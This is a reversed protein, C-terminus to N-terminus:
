ISANIALLSNVNQELIRKEKELSNVEDRWKSLNPPPNSQNIQAKYAEKQLELEKAVKELAKKTNDQAHKLKSTYSTLEALNTQGARKKNQLIFEQEQYYHIDQVLYINATKLDDALKQTKSIVEDIQQETLFQKEKEDSIFIGVVAGIVGGIIAGIGAGIKSDTIINGIVAGAAAGTLMATTKTKTQDKEFDDQKSTQALQYEYSALEVKYQEYGDRQALLKTKQMEIDQLEKCLQESKTKYLLGKRNRKPSCDDNMYLHAQYWFSDLKDNINLLDQEVQVIDVDSFASTPPSLDEQPTKKPPVSVCASVMVILFLLPISFLKYRCFM